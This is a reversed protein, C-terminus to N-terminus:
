VDQAQEVDEGRQAGARPQPQMGSEVDVPHQTVDFFVADCDFHRDRGDRQGDGRM